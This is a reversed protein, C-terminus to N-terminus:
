KSKNFKSLADVLEKLLVCLENVSKCARENAEAWERNAQAWRENAEKLDCSTNTTTTLTETTMIDNKEKAPCELMRPLSCYGKNYVCGSCNTM